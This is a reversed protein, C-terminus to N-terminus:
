APNELIRVFSDLEAQGAPASWLKWVLACLSWTATLKIAYTRFGAGAAGAGPQRDIM